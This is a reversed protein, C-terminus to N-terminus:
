RWRRRRILIEHTGGRRSRARPKPRDSPHSPSRISSGHARCRFWAGAIRTENVCPCPVPTTAVHRGQERTSRERHEQQRNRRLRLLLAAVLGL